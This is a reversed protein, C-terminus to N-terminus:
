VKAKQDIRGNGIVYDVLTKASETLRVRRNPEDIELLEKAAFPEIFASWCQPSVSRWGDGKDASRAILQLTGKDSASLM